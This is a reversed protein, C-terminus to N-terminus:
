ENEDKVILKPTNPYPGLNREIDWIKQSHYSVESNTIEAINDISAGNILAERVAHRLLDLAPDLQGIGHRSYRYNVGSM